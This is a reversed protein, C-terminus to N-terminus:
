NKCSTSRTANNQAGCNTMGDCGTAQNGTGDTCNIANQTNGGTCQIFTNLCNTTGISPCTPSSTSFTCAPLTGARFEAAKPHPMAGFSCLSLVVLPMYRQLQM